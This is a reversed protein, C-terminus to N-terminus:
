GAPDYCSLRSDGQQTWLLARATLMCQRLLIRAPVNSTELMQAAQQRRALHMRGVQKGRGGLLRGDHMMSYELLGVAADYSDLYQRAAPLVVSGLRALLRGGDPPYCKALPRTAM